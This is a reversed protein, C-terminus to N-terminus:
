FILLFFCPLLSPACIVFLSLSWVKQRFLLAVCRFRFRSMFFALPFLSISLQIFFFSAGVLIRPLNDAWICIYPSIWTPQSKLHSVLSQRHSLISDVFDVVTLLKVIHIFFLFKQIHNVDMAHHRAISSM